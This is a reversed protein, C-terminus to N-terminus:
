YIRGDYGAPNIGDIEDRNVLILDGIAINNDSLGVRKGQRKSM